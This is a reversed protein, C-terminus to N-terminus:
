TTSRGDEAVIACQGWYDDAGSVGSFLNYGFVLNVLEDGPQTTILAASTPHLEHSWAVNFYLGGFNGVYGPYLTGYAGRGPIGSAYRLGAASNYSTGAGFVVMAGARPGPVAVSAPYPGIMADPTSRYTLQEVVDAASLGRTLPIDALKTM